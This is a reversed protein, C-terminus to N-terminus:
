DDSEEEPKPSLTALEAERAKSWHEFWAEINVSDVKEGGLCGIVRILSTKFNLAGVFRAEVVKREAYQELAWVGTTPLNHPSLGAIYYVIRKATMPEAKKLEQEAELGDLEKKKLREYDWKDVKNREAYAEIFATMKKTGNAAIATADVGNTVARLVPTVIKTLLDDVQLLLEDDQEPTPTTDTM